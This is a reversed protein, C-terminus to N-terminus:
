ELARHAPIPAHYGTPDRYEPVEVWTWITEKNTLTASKETVSLVGQLEIELRLKVSSNTPAPTVQALVSPQHASLALLGVVVIVYSRMAYGGEGGFWGM